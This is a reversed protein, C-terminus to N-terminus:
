AAFPVTDVDVVEIEINRNIYRGRYEYTCNLRCVGIPKVVGGGFARLTKSSTQLPANPAVIDFLRKPLITVDSGTDVKFTVLKGNMNLNAKWVPKIGFNVSHVTRDIQQTISSAYFEQNNGEFDGSNIANVNRTQCMVAFHNSKSCNKCRKGYAPCQNRAHRLNCRSCNNSNKNNNNQNENRNNNNNSNSSGSTNSRPNQQQRFNRNDFNKSGQTRAFGNNKNKNGGSNNNNSRGNDYKPANQSKSFSQKVESVTATTRNMSETQEQTVESARCKEVAQEYTLDTSELLKTQVRKNAVGHVIRDRIMENTKDGYGCTSALRKIDMLYSDFSEGEKQSRSLFMFREFVVNTKPKCFTEFATLVDAYTEKQQQTLNFTDFVKLAERGILNLFIAVKVKDVKGDCETAMLYIELDRRFNKWNEALNGDTSLIDPRKVLDTMKKRPIQPPAQTRNQNSDRRQARERREDDSDLESSHIDPLPPIAQQAIASLARPSDLTNNNNTKNGNERRAQARKLAIKNRYRTTLKYNRVNVKSSTQKIKNTIRGSRLKM